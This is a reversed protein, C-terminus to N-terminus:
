GAFAPESLGKVGIKIAFLSGAPSPLTPANDNEQSCSTVYLIDLNAGGFICSTPRSVPMAITQIEKGDPAYCFIKGSQWQAEWVNGESDVTLGDPEIASKELQLFIKRNRLLGNKLDFDYQYIRYKLGDTYYFKKNDPSFGLGNSITIETEMQLLAGDPNLRYLSGAPNEVDRSAVGFWFRGLRDCKGDNMYVTKSWPSVEALPTIRLSPLSIAVVKNGVTAVLGGMARPVVAGIPEDLQWQQYAKTQPNLRHLTHRVLDIWYLVNEHPHWMPGEGLANV